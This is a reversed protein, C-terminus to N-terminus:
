RLAASFAFARSAQRIRCHTASRGFDEAPCSRRRKASFANGIFDVVRSRMAKEREQCGEESHLISQLSLQAIDAFM